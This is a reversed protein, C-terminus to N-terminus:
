AWTRLLIGVIRWIRSYRSDDSGSYGPLASSVKVLTNSSTEPPLPTRRSPM